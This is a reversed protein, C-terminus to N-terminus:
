AGRLLDRIPWAKVCGDGGSTFLRSGDASLAMGYMPGLHWEFAARLALSDADFAYLKGQWSGVYVFEGAPDVALVRAGERAPTGRRGDLGGEAVVKGSAIDFARVTGHVGFVRQGDHSFAVAAFPEALGRLPRMQELDFVRLSTGCAALRKGDPSAAVGGLADPLNMGRVSEGSPVRVIEARSRPDWIDPRVHVLARAPDPLAAVCMGPPESELTSEIRTPPDTSLDFAAFLGIGPVLGIGAALLYRADSTIAVGTPFRGSFKVVTRTRNPVDWYAVSNKGEVAAVRSGDPSCAVAYLPERDSYLVGPLNAELGAAGLEEKRDACPGCTEGMWGLAGPTGVAGCGCACVLESAKGVTRRCVYEPYAHWLAPRKALEDNHLLRKAEDHEVRRGRVVVHKRGISDTWWAALVQTAPVGGKGGRFMSYGEPSAAADRAFKRWKAADDKLLRARCRKNAESTSEALAAVVQEPAPDILKTEHKLMTPNGIINGLTLRRSVGLTACGAPHHGLAKPYLAKLTFFTNVGFPNYGL